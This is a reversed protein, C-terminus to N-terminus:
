KSQVAPSGFIPDVEPYDERYHAGRSEKRKLAAEAMLRSATLLCHLRFPEMNVADQRPAAKLGESIHSVTELVKKLGTENRCVLLNHQNVALLQGIWMNTDGRKHLIDWIGEDPGPAYAEQDPKHRDAWQAACTGAIKGFVQCTVMMNGGLRNAGHPGGAVEGAAYLGPLASMGQSDIRVGGNIAHAFVDIEVKRSLLDVGKDKMHNRAVPWMHHLGCDDVIKSVYGDTMHRLDATIGGGAGGHGSRIEKQIGIELYKSDDSSSFPFHRRHEDMIYEAKMSSPMYKELFSEGEGNTLLPHGAWIYGNFINVIPHSFGIGTQMFEMNVLEAGAEYALMYGDGSVDGPNLNKEFVQSAGGTALIVAGAAIRVLSGKSDIGWAGCCRGDKKILQIITVGSLTSISPRLNMQRLMAHVIPEGHGRIVHTRPTSAFCSKFIYYGDGEKEFDVGWAELDCITDPAREALIAALGEDAMGLAASMIDEFHREVDGDVQPDGANYGAMEAVPYTTAGGAGIPKKAAILVDAGADCAAIAARCAAGGGGIVLVDTVLRDM